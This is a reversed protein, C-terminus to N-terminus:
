KGATKDPQNEGDNLRPKQKRGFEMPMADGAEEAGTVDDESLGDWTRREPKPKPKKAM